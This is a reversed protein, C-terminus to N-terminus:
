DINNIDIEPVPPGFGALNFLNDFFETANAIASECFHVDVQLTGAFPSKDLISISSDTAVLKELVGRDRSKAVLGDAHVICHRVKELSKLPEWNAITSIDVSVLKYLFVKCRDLESGKLDKPGLPLNRRNQIETCLATLRNAVISYLLNIFSYRLFRPFYDDFLIEHEVQMITWEEYDKSKRKLRLEEEKRLRVMQEEMANLYETLSDFMAMTEVKFFDVRIRRVM